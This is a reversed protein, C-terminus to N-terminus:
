PNSESEATNKIYRTLSPRHGTWRKFARSFTSADSFGLMSSVDQMTVDKRRLHECALEERLHDLVEQFTTGEDKLRRLLTRETMHLLNATQSKSVEGNAFQKLLCERVKTSFRGSLDALQGIALSDLLSALNDDAALVPRHMDTADFVICDEQQGFYVPCQLLETYQSQNGPCKHMFHVEVPVIRKASIWSCFCVVGALYADIAQTLPPAGGTDFSAHLCLQDPTETLTMTNTSSILKSYRAFRHLAEGITASCSMAYGVVHFTAPRIQMAVKLGFNPDGTKHIATRWLNVLQEHSYRNGGKELRGADMGLQRFVQEHPIGEADLARAIALVWGSLGSKM